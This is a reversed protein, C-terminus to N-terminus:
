QKIQQNKQQTQQFSPERKPQQITTKKTHKNGKLPQPPQKGKWLALVATVTTELTLEKKNQQKNVSLEEWQKLKQLTQKNNRTSHKPQQSERGEPRPKTDSEDLATAAEQIM